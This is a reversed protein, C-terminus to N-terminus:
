EGFGELEDALEGFTDRLRRIRSWVGAIAAAKAGVHDDEDNECRGELELEGGDVDLHAWWEWPLRDDVATYELTVSLAGARLEYTNRNPHIKHKSQTWDAM